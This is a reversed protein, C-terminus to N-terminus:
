QCCHEKLKKVLKDWGISAGVIEFSIAKEGEPSIYNIILYHRTEKKSKNGIGSMGGVIAGLPGLILGGVAARGIVSKQQELIQTDTLIEAKKLKNLELFYFTEKELRKRVTLLDNLIGVAVPTGNKLGDIGDIFSFNVEIDKTKSKSGFLGM